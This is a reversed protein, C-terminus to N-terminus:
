GEGAKPVDRLREELDASVTEDDFVLAGDLPKVPHADVLRVEFGLAAVRAADEISIMVHTEGPPGPVRDLDLSPLDDLAVQRKGRHLTAAYRMEPLGGEKSSHKKPM